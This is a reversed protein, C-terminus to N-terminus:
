NSVPNISMVFMCDVQFYKDKESVTQHNASNKGDKTRSQSYILQITHCWPNQM